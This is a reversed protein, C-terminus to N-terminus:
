YQIWNSADTLDGQQSEFLKQTTYEQGDTQGDIDHSCDCTDDM